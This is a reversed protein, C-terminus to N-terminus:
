EGNAIRRLSLAMEDRLAATVDEGTQCILVSTDGRKRWFFVQHPYEALVLSIYWGRWSTHVNEVDRYWTEQGASRIRVHM